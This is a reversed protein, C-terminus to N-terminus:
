LAKHQAAHLLPESHECDNLRVVQLDTISRGSLVNLTAPAQRFKWVQQLPLGLVRCLLVRNVADRGTFIGLLRRERQTVLVAGINRERMRRAADLVTATPPLMVPNQNRVLDSMQRMAAVM